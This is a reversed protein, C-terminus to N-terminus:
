RPPTPGGWTYQAGVMLTDVNEHNGGPLKFRYRDWDLRLGWGRTLGVVAGVGFSPGWGNQSSGGLESSGWLAGLKGFVSSRAGLPIGGLLSFNVGQMEANGTSRTFNGTKLYSVEAGFANNFKGGVYLRGANTTDSCTAGAPCPDDFKARGVSLGVHGTTWFEKQYPMRLTDDRTQALAPAALAALSLLVITKM